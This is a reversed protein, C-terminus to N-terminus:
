RPHYEFLKLYVNRNDSQIKVLSFNPDWTFYKGGYFGLYRDQKEINESTINLTPQVYTYKTGLIINKAQGFGVSFSALPVFVMTIITVGIMYKRSNLKKVYGNIEFYIYVVLCSLLVFAWLAFEFVNVFEVVFNHGYAILAYLTTPMLMLVSIFIKKHKILFGAYKNDATQVVDGQFDRASAFSHHVYVSFIILLSIMLGSISSKAIDIISIFDFINVPFLAWFGLTYAAGSVLVYVSLFSIIFPIKDAVIFGSKMEM